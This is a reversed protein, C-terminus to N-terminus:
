ALVDEDRDVPRAGTEFIQATRVAGEDISVVLVQGIDYNAADKFLLGGASLNKTLSTSPDKEKKNYLTIFNKHYDFPM